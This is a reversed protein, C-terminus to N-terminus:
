RAANKLVVGSLDSISAGSNKEAAVANTMQPSSL